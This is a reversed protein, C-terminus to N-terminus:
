SPAALGRASVLMAAFGRSGGRGRASRHRRRRVQRPQAAVGSDVDVVSAASCRVKARAAREGELGPAGGRAQAAQPREGVRELHGEADQDGARRARRRAKVDEAGGAAADDVRVPPPKRVRASDAAPSGRSGSTYSTVSAGPHISSAAGCAGSVNSCMTTTRPTSASAHPPSSRWARARRRRTRERRDAVHRGSGRSARSRAAGSSSRHRRNPRRYAVPNISASAIEGCVNM